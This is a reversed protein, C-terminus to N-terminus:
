LFHIFAAPLASFPPPNQFRYEVFLFNLGLSLRQYPILLVQLWGYLDGVYLKLRFWSSHGVWFVIPVLTAQIKSSCEERASSTVASYFAQRELWAKKKAPFL